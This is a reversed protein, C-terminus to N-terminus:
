ADNEGPTATGYRRQYYARVQPEYIKLGLRALWRLPTEGALRPSYGQQRLRQELGAYDEDRVSPLNERNETTPAPQAVRQRSRYLRWGLWLSLPLLLYGWLPWSKDEPQQSKDWRWAQWATIWGSWLDATTQWWPDSQAEDEAWRAPTNDLTQWAGNLYAESWAHAHRARVLYTNSAPSYEQATYGVVYRSPIGAARLLLATAGAFYECHGAKRRYLFDAMAGSGGRKDGLYLSYAYDRAFLQAISAAVDPATKHELELQRVLPALLARTAKPLQTAPPPPPTHDQIAPDYGMRYRLVPPVDRLKLTGLRNRQLVSHAPLELSQLGPPIPLLASRQEPIRLVRLQVTGQDSGPAQYPEFPAPYALWNEGDYHDYAAEKLLLTANLRQESSIRMIIKGSLKLQGVEGIATRAKFPDTDSGSLWDVAWAELASQLSKLGLQGGYGLGVALSFWLLWVAKGQRRPQNQLLTWGCLGTIGLFYGADGSGGSGAALACFFAYPLRFDLSPRPIESRSRRLSYFLASLPLLSTSYLQALLLPAFFLPLWRLLAYVPPTDGGASIFYAVGGLFLVSTLDGIRHFQSAALPWRWPSRSAPGVLLLMLGAAAATKSQWGWFLLSLALLYPPYTLQKYRNLRRCHFVGNM